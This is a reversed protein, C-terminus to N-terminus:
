FCKLNIQNARILLIITMVVKLYTLVRNSTNNRVKGFSSVSYNLYDKIPKWIESMKIASDDINKISEIMLSIRQRMQEHIKNLEKIQEEM